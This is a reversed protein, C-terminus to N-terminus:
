FFLHSLCFTTYITFRPRHWTPVCRESQRNARTQNRGEVTLLMLHDLEFPRDSYCRTTCLCDYNGTDHSEDTLDITEQYHHPSFWTMAPRLMGKKLTQLSIVFSLSSLASPPSSRCFLALFSHLISNWLYYKNYIISIYYAKIFSIHKCLKYSKSSVFYIQFLKIKCSIEISIFFCLFNNNKKYTPFLILQASTCHPSVGLLQGFM